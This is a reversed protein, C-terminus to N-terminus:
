KEAFGLYLDKVGGGWGAQVSTKKNPQVSYVQFVM